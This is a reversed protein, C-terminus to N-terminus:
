VENEIFFMGDNEKVSYKNSMIEVPLELHHNALSPNRPVAKVEYWKGELLIRSDQKVEMPLSYITFPTPFVQRDDKVYDTTARINVSLRCKAKYEERIFLEKWQGNLRIRKKNYVDCKHTLLKKFIRQSQKLRM